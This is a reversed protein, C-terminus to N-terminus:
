SCLYKTRSRSPSIMVLALVISGLAPFTLCITVPMIIDVNQWTLNRCTRVNLGAKILETLKVSTPLARGPRVSLSLSDSLWVPVM